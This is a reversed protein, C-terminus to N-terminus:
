SGYVVVNVISMNRWSANQPSYTGIRFSTTTQLGGDSDAWQSGLVAMGFGGTGGTNGIICYNSDSLANNFNVTYRGDAAKVVSSINFQSYIPQNQSVIGQGNFSVWAKPMFPLSSLQALATSYTQGGLSFPIIGGTSPTGLPLSSITVDAM